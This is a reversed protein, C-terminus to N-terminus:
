GAEYEPPHEVLAPAMVTLCFNLRMRSDEGGGMEEWEWGGMDRRGRRGDRRNEPLEM